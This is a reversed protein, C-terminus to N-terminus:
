QCFAIVKFGSFLNSASFISLVLVVILLPGGEFILRYGQRAARSRRRSALNREMSNFSYGVSQCLLIIHNSREAKKTTMSIVIAQESTQIAGLRIPKM